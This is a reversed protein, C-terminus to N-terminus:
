FYRSFLSDLQESLSGEPQVDLLRMLDLFEVLDIRQKGAEVKTLYQEPKGLKRSLPRQELGKSVRVKRIWQGLEAYEARADLSRQRSRAIEKKDSNM